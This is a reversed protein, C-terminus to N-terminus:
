KLTCGSAPLGNWGVLRNAVDSVYCKTSSAADELSGPNPLEGSNYIRAARYYAQANAKAFEGLGTSDSSSGAVAASTAAAPTPSMMVTYAAMSTPTTTTTDDDSPPVSAAPTYPATPALAALSDPLSTLEAESNPLSAMAATAVSAEALISSSAAADDNNAVVSTAFTTPPASLASPYSSTYSTAVSTATTATQLNNASISVTIASTSQFAALNTAYAMQMYQVAHQWVANSFEAVAAANCASLEAPIPVTPALDSSQRKKIVPGNAAVAARLTQKLGDGAPTGQVGDNVMGTIMEEPCNALMQDANWVYSEFSTKIAKIRTTDKDKQLNCTHDGDHDQMLGPNRVKGDPSVTSHVHVCGNSEQMAIALIFRKDIGTQKSAQIVATKLFDTEQDSNNPVNFSNMCSDSKLINM